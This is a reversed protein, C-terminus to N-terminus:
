ERMKFMKVDKARWTGALQSIILKSDGFVHVRKINAMACIMLGTLVGVYEAENCTAWGCCVYFDACKTGNADYVAFGAGSNGPNGKSAGDFFLNYTGQPSPGTKQSLKKLTASIKVPDQHFFKLIKDQFFPGKITDHISDSPHSPPTQPKPSSPVDIKSGPKNLYSLIEPELTDLENQIEAENYTPLQDLEQLIQDEYTEDRPLTSFHHMKFKLPTNKLYAQGHVFEKCLKSPTSQTMGLGRTVGSKLTKKYTWANTALKKFKLSSM